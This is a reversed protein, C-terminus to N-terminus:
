QTELDRLLPDHNSNNAHSNYVWLSLTTLGLAYLFM